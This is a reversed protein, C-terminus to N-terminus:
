AHEAALQASSACKMATVEQKIREAGGAAIEADRTQAVKKKSKEIQKKKALKAENASM